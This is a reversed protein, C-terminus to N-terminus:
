FLDVKKSPSVLSIDNDKNHLLFNANSSTRFPSKRPMIQPPGRNKWFPDDPPPPKTRMMTFESTVLNKFLLQKEDPKLTSVDFSM